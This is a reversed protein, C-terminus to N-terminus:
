QNRLYEQLDQPEDDVVDAEVVEDDGAMDRLLVPLEAIDVARSDLRGNLIGDIFHRESENATVITYAVKGNGVNTLLTTLQRITTGRLGSTSLFAKLEDKTATQAKRIIYGIQTLCDAENTRAYLKILKMVPGMIVELKSRDINIVDMPTIVIDTAVQEDGNQVIEMCHVGGTNVLPILKSVCNRTVSTITPDLNKRDAIYDFWDDFRDFQIVRPRGAFGTVPNGHEDVIPIRIKVYDRTLFMNWVQLRFAAGSRSQLSALNLTVEHGITAAYVEVDAINADATPVPGLQFTAAVTVLDILSQADENGNGVGKAVINPLRPAPTIASSSPNNSM